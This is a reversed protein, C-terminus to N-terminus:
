SATDEAPAALTASGSHFCFAAFRDLVYALAACIAVGGLSVLLAIALVM